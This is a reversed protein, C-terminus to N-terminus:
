KKEQQRLAFLIIAQSFVGETEEREGLEQKAQEVLEDWTRRLEGILRNLVKERIKNSETKSNEVAKDLDIILAKEEKMSAIFKILKERDIDKPVPISFTKYPLYIELSNWLSDNIEVCYAEKIDTIRPRGNISYLLMAM